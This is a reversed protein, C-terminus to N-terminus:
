LLKPCAEGKEFQDLDKNDFRGGIFDFIRRVFKGQLKPLLQHRFGQFIAGQENQGMM